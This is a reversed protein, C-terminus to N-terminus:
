CRVGLLRALSGFEELLRSKGIGAEGEITAIGGHGAVTRELLARLAALEKVRGVMRGSFAQPAPPVGGAPAHRARDRGAAKAAYSGRDAAALLAAASEGDGPFCSVGISFSLRLTLAGDAASVLAAAAAARVREAAALAEELDAGHLLAVFEDGGLRGVVDEVRLTDRLTRAAAAFAADGTAHGYHDNFAKLYDLDIM